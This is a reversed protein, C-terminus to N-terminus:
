YAERHLRRLHDNYHDRLAAVERVRNEREEDLAAKVADIYLRQKEVVESLDSTRKELSSVKESLPATADGAAAAAIDEVSSKSTAPSCSALLFFISVLANTRM